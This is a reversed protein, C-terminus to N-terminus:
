GPASGPLKFESKNISAALQSQTQAVRAQAEALAKKLQEVEAQQISLQAKLKEAQPAEFQKKQDPPLTDFIKRLDGISNIKCIVRDDIFSVHSIDILKRIRENTITKQMHTHFTRYDYGHIPHRSKYAQYYGKAGESAPKWQHTPDLKLLHNVWNLVEQDSILQPTTRTHAFM